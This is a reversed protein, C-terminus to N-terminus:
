LWGKLFAFPGEQAKAEARKAIALVDPVVPHDGPLRDNWRYVVDEGSVVFTGGLRLVGEPIDGFKMDPPLPALSGTNSLYDWWGKFGDLEPAAMKVKKQEEKDGDAVTGFGANSYATFDYGDV